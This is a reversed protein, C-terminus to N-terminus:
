SALLNLPAVLRIPALFFDGHYTQPLPSLHGVGELAKLVAKDYGPNGSSRILEKAVITGDRAILINLVLERTGTRDISKDLWWRENINQLLEFYYAQIDERLTEGEGLSRFFGRTAGLGVSVREIAASQEHGQLNKEIRNQLDDLEPTPTPATEQPIQRPLPTRSEESLPAPPRPRTVPASMTLDLFAVKKGGIKNGKSGTLSLFIAVHLLLSLVVMLRFAQWKETHFTPQLIDLAQGM